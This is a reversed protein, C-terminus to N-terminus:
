GGPSSALTAAFGAVADAMEEYVEEQTRGSGKPLAFSHDVDQVV